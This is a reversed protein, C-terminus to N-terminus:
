DLYNYTSLEFSPCIYLSVSKLVQILVFQLLHLLWDPRGFWFLHNDPKVVFSGKIVRNQKFTEVGMKTIILQLKTGVVLIIKLM